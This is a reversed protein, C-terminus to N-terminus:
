NPTSLTTIERARVGIFDGNNPMCGYCTWCMSADSADVGLKVLHAMQERSLVQEEIKM